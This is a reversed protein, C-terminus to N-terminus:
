NLKIAKEGTFNEWRAKYGYNDTLKHCEHCLTLGNDVDYILEPYKSQAKIHHAELDRTHKGCNQCIYNDRKFVKDRWEKYQANTRRLKSEKTKGGQWFHSQEGKRERYALNRCENSCYIKNRKTTTQFKKGCIPCERNETARKSWCEKSCYITQRNKHDHIARFEKGCVPCIATRARQTHPYHKGKKGGKPMYKYRCEQSCYKKSLRDPHFWKGCECQHWEQYRGKHCNLCYTKPKEESQEDGCHPCIWKINM